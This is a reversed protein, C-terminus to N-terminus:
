RGRCPCRSCRSPRAQDVSSSTPVWVLLLPCKQRRAPTPAPSCGKTATQKPSCRGFLLAAPPSASMWAVRTMTGTYPEDAEGSTGRFLCSVNRQSGIVLGIGSSLSCSLTGVQVRRSQANAASTALVAAVVMTAICIAMYRRSWAKTLRM